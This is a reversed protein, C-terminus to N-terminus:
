CEAKYSSNKQNFGIGATPFATLVSRRWISAEASMNQLTSIELRLDGLHNADEFTYAKFYKRLAEIGQVSIPWCNYHLRLLM